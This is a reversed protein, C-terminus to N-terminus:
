NLLLLAPRTLVAFTPLYQVDFFFKTKNRLTFSESALSIMIIFSLLVFDQWFIQAFRTWFITIRSRSTKIYVIYITTELTGALLPFAILLYSDQVRLLDCKGCGRKRRPESVRQTCLNLTGQHNAQTWCNVSRWCFRRTTSVIQSWFCYLKLKGVSILLERLVGGWVCGRQLWACKLWPFNRHVLLDSNRWKEMIKDIFAVAAPFRCIVHLVIFVLVACCLLPMCTHLCVACCLVACCVPVIACLVSACLVACLCVPVCCVCCLVACLCVVCVVCCLVCACLVACVCSVLCLVCSVLCPYLCLCLFVFLCCFCLVPVCCLRLHLCLCLLFVACACLVPAPAPVPVAFVCCLCVCCLCLPVARQVASYEACACACPLAFLVFMGLCKRQM